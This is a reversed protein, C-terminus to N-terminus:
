PHHHFQPFRGGNHPRFVREEDRLVHRRGYGPGARKGAHGIMAPPADPTGAQYRPGSQPGGRGKPLDPMDVLSNVAQDLSGLGVGDAGHTDRELVGELHPPDARITQHLRKPISRPTGGFRIVLRALGEWINVPLGTIDICGPRIGYQLFEIVPSEM